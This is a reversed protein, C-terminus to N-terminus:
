GFAKFVAHMCASASAASAADVLELVIHHSSEWSATSNASSSSIFRQVNCRVGEEADRMLLFSPAIMAGPETLRQGSNCCCCCCVYSEVVMLVEVSM